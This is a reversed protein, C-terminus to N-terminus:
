RQLECPAEARGAPAVVGAAVVGAARGRGSRYVNDCMAEGPREQGTLGHGSQGRRGRDAASQARAAQGDAARAPLARRRGVRARRGRDEGGGVGPAWGAVRYTKAPSSRSAASRWARSARAWRRAPDIAYRLGGVRVMDGGQQYYPDPNFLNDAVDELITKIMEGTMDSVTMYPYTIATQDLVHEMTIAQGPLLTTGWRFGPSFAIEANKEAMLADLIVQDFTGNFNGRRYLLGDAVALKEELKATYPARM